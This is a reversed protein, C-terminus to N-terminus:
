MGSPTRFVSTEWHCHHEMGPHRLRASDEWISWMMGNLWSSGAAPPSM